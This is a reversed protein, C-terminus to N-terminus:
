NDSELRQLFQLKYSTTTDIILLLVMLFAILVFILLFVWDPNKMEFRVYIRAVLGGLLLVGSPIAKSLSSCSILAM